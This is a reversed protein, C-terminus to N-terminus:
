LKIRSFIPLVTSVSSWCQGENPSLQQGDYDKIACLTDDWLNKERTTIETCFLVRDDDSLTCDIFCLRKLFYLHETTFPQLAIQIQDRNSQVHKAVNDYDAQNISLLSLFYEMPAQVVSAVIELIAPLKDQRDIAYLLPSGQLRNTSTLISGLREADLSQLSNMLYQLSEAVCDFNRQNDFKTLYNLVNDGLDDQEELLEAFKHVGISSDFVACLMDKNECCYHLFSKGAVGRAKLCKLRNLEDQLANLLYRTILCKNGSSAIHLASEHKDDQIDLIEVYKEAPLAGLIIVLIDVQAEETLNSDAILKHLITQECANTMSILQICEESKEVFCDLTQRITEKKDSMLHFVSNGASDEIKLMSLKDKGESFWKLVTCIFKTNGTKVALHLCTDGNDDKTNLLKISELTSPDEFSNALSRIINSQANQAIRHLVTGGNGDLAQLVAVTDCKQIRSLFIQQMDIASKTAALHLCTNQNLDKLLLLQKVLYRRDEVQEMVFQSMNKASAEEMSMCQHLVTQDKKNQLFLLDCLTDASLLGFLGGIIQKDGAAISADSFVIHLPTDGADNKQQMITKLDEQTARELHRFVACRSSDFSMSSLLDHMTTSRDSANTAILMCRDHTDLKDMIVETLQPHRLSVQLVTKGDKGLEQLFESRDSSSFADHGLMKDLSHARKSVMDHSPMISSDPSVEMGTGVAVHFISDSEKNRLKMM